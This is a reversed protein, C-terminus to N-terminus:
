LTPFLNKIVTEGYASLKRTGVIALNLNFNQPLPLGQLYLGLPPFPIEKLYSPYETDNRTILRIHKSTLKAYEKDISFQAKIAEIKDDKLLEALNLWCDNLSMGDKIVWTLLKLRKEGLIINLANLLPSENM